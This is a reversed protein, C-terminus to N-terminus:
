PTSPLDSWRGIGGVSLFFNGVKGKDKEIDIYVYYKLINGLFSMREYLWLEMVLNLVSLMSVVSRDTGNDM